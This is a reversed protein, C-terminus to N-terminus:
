GRIQEKYSIPLVFHDMTRETKQGDVTWAQGKEDVFVVERGQARAIRFPDSLNYAMNTARSPRGMIAQLDNLPSAAKSTGAKDQSSWKFKKNDGGALLYRQYLTREDLDLGVALMCWIDGYDIRDKFDIM